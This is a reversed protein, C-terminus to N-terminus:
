ASPISVKDSMVVAFTNGNHGSVKKCWTCHCIGQTSPTPNAEFIFILFNTTHRHDHTFPNM